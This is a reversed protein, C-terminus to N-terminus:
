TPESQGLLVEAMLHAGQATTITGAQCDVALGRADRFRRFCDSLKEGVDVTSFRGCHECEARTYVSGPRPVAESEPPLVLKELVDLRDRMARMAEWVTRPHVNDSREELLDLRQLISKTSM